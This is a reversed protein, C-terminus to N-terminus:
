CRSAIAFVIESSSNPDATVWYGSTDLTFGSSISSSPTLSKTADVRGEYGGGGSLDFPFAFRDSTGGEVLSYMRTYSHVNTFSTDIFFLGELLVFVADGDPVSSILLALEDGSVGNLYIRSYFLNAGGSTNIVKIGVKYEIIMDIYPEEINITGGNLVIPGTYNSQSTGKLTHFRTIAREYKNSGTGTNLETFQVIQNSRESDILIDGPIRFSSAIVSGQQPELHLAARRRSSVNYRNNNIVITVSNSQLAEDLGDFVNNSVIGNFESNTDLIGRTSGSNTHQFINNDVIIPSTNDTIDIINLTGSINATIKFINGCIICNSIDAYGINILNTLGSGNGLIINNHIKIDSIPNGSNCDLINMNSVASALNINCDKILVNNIPDSAAYLNILSILGSPNVNADFNCNKIIINDVGDLRIVDTSMSLDVKITVNELTFNDISVDILRGVPQNTKTLITNKSEGIINIGNLTKSILTNIIKITGNALNEYIGEKIFITISESLEGLERMIATICSGIDNNYDSVNYDGISGEYGTGVTVYASSAFLRKNLTEYFVRGMKGTRSNDIDRLYFDLDGNINNRNLIGLPTDFSRITIDNSSNSGLLNALIVYVDLTSIGNNSILTYAGDGTITVGSGVSDGPAQWQLATPGTSYVLAGIGNDVNRSLRIVEVGTIEELPSVIDIRNYDVFSNPLHSPAFGNGLFAAASVGAFMVSHLLISKELTVDNPLEYITLNETINGSGSISTMDSLKNVYVDIYHKYGDNYLRVTRPSKDSIPEPKGFNSDGIVLFALTKATDDYFIQASVNGGSVAINRNVNRLQVHDALDNAGGGNENSQTNYQIRRVKSFSAIGDIGEIVYIDYVAQQELVVDTFTISSSSVGNHQVGNLYFADGGIPQTIDFSDPSGAPNVSGEFINQSSGRIIGNSHFLDQHIEIDNETIGLDDVTLGHPNITTPTGSGILSRHFEDEATHRSVFQSYINSILIVDIQDSIPLNPVIILLTITKGSSSSLIYTNSSVIVVASGYSEGPAQWEITTGSVTFRLSGNGTSTTRDISSISVGSINNTTNTATIANGFVTPNIINSLTLSIGTGQAIVKALVMARDIADENFNDDSAPLNNYETETLIRIRYSRNAATAFSNGNTEHPELDDNSETYIALIYNVTNLTYDALPLASSPTTIEVFEGNPAYGYGIAIDILIADSVNITVECGFVVGLQSIDDHRKIIHFTRTLETRELDDQHVEVGEPYLSRDM